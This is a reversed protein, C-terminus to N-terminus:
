SALPKARDRLKERWFSRKKWENPNEWHLNHIAIISKWEAKALINVPFRSLVEESFSSYREFQSLLFCM